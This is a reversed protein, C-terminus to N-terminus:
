GMRMTFAPHSMSYPRYVSSNMYAGSASSSSAEDGTRESLFQFQKCEAFAARKARMMSTAAALSIERDWPIADKPVKVEQGRLTFLDGNLEHAERSYDPIIQKM